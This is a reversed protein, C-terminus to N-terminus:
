LSVVGPRCRSRSSDALQFRTASAIAAASRAVECSIQCAVTEEGVQAREPAPQATRRLEVGVHVVLHAEVDLHFRSAQHLLAAEVRSSACRWAAIANPPTSFYRPAPRSANPKVQIRPRDASKLSPMRMSRLYGPRVATASNANDSAIPAPAAYRSNMLSRICPLSGKGSASRM